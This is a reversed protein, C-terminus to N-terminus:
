GLRLLMSRLGCRQSSPLIGLCSIHRHISLHIRIQMHTHAQMGSVLEKVEGWLKLIKMQLIIRPNFNKLKFNEKSYQEISIWFCDQM